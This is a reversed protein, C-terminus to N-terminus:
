SEHTKYSFFKKFLSVVYEREREGIESHVGIFFGNDRIWRSVPLEGQIKINQNKFAPQDPLCGGFFPRTDVNHSNLHEELEKRTFSVGKKIIIPYGYYVHKAWNKEIPVQIFNKYASLYRSYFEANKRRAENNWDLKKLQAIGFAAQLDTMRMNYGLTLFTQNKHYDKFLPFDKLVANDFDEKGLARGFTRISKVRDKIEESDTVLMGGDGTTMNHAVFFSFSGALGFTGVRKGKYESGHAECCDEFMILDNKKAIESLKDIDAPMGLTHVPMLVRTRDNVAKEVENPDINYSEADVDVFHPVLGLQIIPSAVTAFTAAPIIVEDGRKIRGSQLLADLALLNASSGSNVAIAYKAGIYSAFNEEFEKTKIGESIRGSYLVELVNLVEEHDYTPIGVKIRSEGPIFEEKKNRFYNEIEEKITRSIM